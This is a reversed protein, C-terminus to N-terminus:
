FSYKNNNAGAILLVHFTLNLSVFIYFNIEVLKGNRNNQKHSILNELANDVISEVLTYWLSNIIQM